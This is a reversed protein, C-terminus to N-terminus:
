AAARYWRLGTPVRPPHWGGPSGPPKNFAPFSARKACPLSDKKELMEILRPYVLDVRQDPQQPDIFDHPVDDAKPFEYTAVAGPRRERWNAALRATAANNAAVDSATTVILISGCAPASKGSAELVDVGLLMTAGISRTSFRPYADSPGSLDAKHMPDWWLFINPMRVLLRSLPANAWQPLGHPSLFPALLVARDVDTRNQAIWAASAGNISLGVVTIRRGLGRSLTVARNAAGLMAETTFNRLQDTMVDAKGHGPTVPIVVNHGREFLLRGLKDFQEPYNTLGHLLVFVNETPQEHLFARPHGAESLTSPAGAINGEIEARAVAYDAAPGPKPVPFAIRMPLLASVALAALLVGIGSLAWRLIQRAKKRLVM